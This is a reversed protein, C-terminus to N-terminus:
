KEKRHLAEYREAEEVSILGDGDTDIERFLEDGFLFEKRSVDGDRNRDMKRFWLPGRTSKGTDAQGNANTYLEFFAKGPDQNASGPGRHLELRYSRPIDDRTIYGKGDRDFQDVLRPAQRMERVSLRGDRNTDLLDFLGRSQDTLHLTVCAANARKHLEAMHDLYALLDKESIKGAGTRDIAKFVDRFQRNATAVEKEDVFGDGNADAQKFQGLAQQRLFGALRDPREVANVRVEARTRGLDLLALGDKMQVQGAIPSRGAGTMLEIRAGDKKGLHIALELDPTRKVFGALEEDDLVGDNNVDLPRFIAEDLGLSKQTLGKNDRDPYRDKMRKVLDAPAEGPKVIPVLTPSSALPDSRGQRGMAMMGALQGLNGGSDPVLERTTIMEDEDEDLKLLLETAAALKDRTLKGDRDKDLLQFIAKNVAEVNPEPRPGGFFAAAGGLPNAPTTELQFLFPVFGNKRYYASLEERTVTGDKDTDLAEMKPGAGPGRGRGGVGGFLQDVSPAREAEEKSLVGDGNVDLYDFLFKMCDDWAAQPSKGDSRVHLRVLLPRAEALFVFDQVDTTQPAPVADAASASYVLAASLVFAPLILAKV